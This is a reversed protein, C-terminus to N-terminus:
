APSPSCAIHIRTSGDTDGNKVRTLFFILLSRTKDRYFEVFSHPSFYLHIM